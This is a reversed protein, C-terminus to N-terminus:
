AGEAIRQTCQVLQRGSVPKLLWCGRFGDPAPAGSVVLYPVGPLLRVVAEHTGDGLSHDLVLVDPRPADAERAVAGVSDLAVVEFGAEALADAYLARQSDHDEVVLVRM